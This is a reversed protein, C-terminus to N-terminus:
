KRLVVRAPAGDGNGDAIKLPLCILEYEGGAVDFLNLGEIIVIGARLLNLHTDFTEGKYQEVSLYDLGILKVGREVLGQAADPEIFTFDEHFRSIADDYSSDVYSNEERTWEILPQWFDSNRTKFLVRECAQPVLREVDERTVSKSKKDIEIVHATGILVELSLDKVQGADDIFHAPADVHTATHAGFDLRTVNAVDGAKISTAAVIKVQPDGPFVATRTTIPVSVDYIKMINEIRCFNDLADRMM